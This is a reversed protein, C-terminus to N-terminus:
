LQPRVYERIDLDPMMTFHFTKSGPSEMARFIHEQTNLDFGLYENDGRVEGDGIDMIDYYEGM